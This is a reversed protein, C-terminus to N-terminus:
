ALLDLAQDLARDYEAQQAIANELEAQVAARQRRTFQCGKLEARLEQIHDYLAIMTTEQKPTSSAITRDHGSARTLSAATRRRTLPTRPLRNQRANFLNRATM